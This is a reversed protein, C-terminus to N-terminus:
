DGGNGNQAALVVAYADDLTLTKSPPVPWDRSAVYYATRWPKGADARAQEEEAPTLGFWYEIARDVCRQVSSSM